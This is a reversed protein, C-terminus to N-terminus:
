SNTADVLGLCIYNKSPRTQAGLLPLQPYCAVTHAWLVTIILHPGQFGLAFTALPLLLRPGTWALHPRQTQLTADAATM